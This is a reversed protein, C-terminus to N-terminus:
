RRKADLMELRLTDYIPVGRLLTAVVIAMAAAALMPVLQSTTATM